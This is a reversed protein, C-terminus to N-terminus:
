KAGDEGEKPTSEAPKHIKVLLQFDNGQEGYNPNATVGTLNPEAFWDSSDLRRMLSSVRNNSEATGSIKVNKNKRELTSYFVGDPITRVLEDFIRVIVPRNGQLEQIIKMRDLLEAKRNELESIESVQRELNKINKTVYANRTNQNDIQGNILLNGFFLLVLAAVAVVGLVILFEKKLEDRRDDRWPLLNIRAM